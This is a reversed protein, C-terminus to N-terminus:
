LHLGVLYSGQTYTLVENRRYEPNERYSAHVWGSTPDGSTYCELILQDFTLNESIWHALSYNNIGPVEFDVACGTKHDSTESGGVARNLAVSRYGSNPTFPIGFHVRVPELIVRCTQKLNKIVHLTPMNDIGLRSATQSKILEGLTFHDSLREYLKM